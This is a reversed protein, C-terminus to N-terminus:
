ERGEEAESMAELYKGAAAAPDSGAWVGRLVAVGMAGVDRAVAAREPTVGGIVVVPRDVRALADRVFGLGAGKRAPHSASEWITGLLLFDAAEARDIEARDHVSVGILWHPSLPRVAAVPLSRQGLQVGDAVAALAVDVRDSVLLRAGARRATPVLAEALALLRSPETRPGRLHLAIAPGHTEMLRAARDSFRRDALVADDTVVHLGPLPM